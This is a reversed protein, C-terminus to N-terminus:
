SCPRSAAEPSPPRPPARRRRRAPPRPPARPRPCRATSRCPRSPRTGALVERAHERAARELLRQRASAAPPGPARPLGSGTRHRELTHPRRAAAGNTANETLDGTATPAPPSARRDLACHPAIPRGLRRQHTRRRARALETPRPRARCRLPRQRTREIGAVLAAIQQPMPSQRARLRLRRGGDLFARGREIAHELRTDPDGVQGVSSTPAPTSCSRCAPRPPSPASRPSRRRRLARTPALPSTARRRRHGRPQARRRRGSSAARRRPRTKPATATAPKWTPPSPFSSPPPSRRSRALMEDRSIAQGDPYGLANATAPARRRSRPLAARAAIM